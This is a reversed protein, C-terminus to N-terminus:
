GPTNFIPDILLCGSKYFTHRMVRLMRIVERECLELDTVNAFKYKRSFQSEFTERCIKGM